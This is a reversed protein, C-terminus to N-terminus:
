KSALYEYVKTFRYKKALELADDGQATQQKINAGGEVLAKVAGLKGNRTAFHLPTEGWSNAPDVPCGAKILKEVALKNGLQAARHMATKGSSDKANKLDWGGAIMEDLTELDDNTLTFFTSWQQKQLAPNPRRAWEERKEPQYFDEGLPPLDFAHAKSPWALSAATGLLASSLLARRSLRDSNKTLAPGNQFAAQPHLTLILKALSNETGQLEKSSSVPARRGHGVCALCALAIAVRQM